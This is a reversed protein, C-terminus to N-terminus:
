PHPVSHHLPGHHLPGAPWTLSAAPGVSVPNGDSSGGTYLTFHLVVILTVAALFAVALLGPSLVHNPSYIHLHVAIRGHRRVRTPARNVKRYTM